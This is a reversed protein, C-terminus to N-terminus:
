QIYLLSIRMVHSGSSHNGEPVGTRRQCAGGDRVGPATGHPKFPPPDKWPQRVQRKQSVLPGWRDLAKEEVLESVPPDWPGFIMEGVYGGIPSHRGEPASSPDPLAKQRTTYKWLKVRKPDFQRKM